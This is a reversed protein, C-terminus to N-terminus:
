IKNNYIDMSHYLSIIDLTWVALSNAYTVYRKGSVLISTTIDTAFWNTDISVKKYSGSSITVSKINKLSSTWNKADNNFAMKSNYYVTRSSGTNNHIRVQWNSGYVLQIDLYYKGNVGKEYTNYSYVLDWPVCGLGMYYSDGNLYYRVGVDVGAYKWSAYILESCYWGDSDISTNLRLTNLSYPKGIQAKAFTLAKSRRTATTGVVRLIKVGFTVMRNDDLFGYSVTPYISEITQIYSGYYSSHSTDSILATHGISGIITKSEFIIDGVLLSSYDFTQGNYGTYVPKRSFASSPTNTPNSDADLIYDATASTFSSSLTTTKILSSNNEYEVVHNIVKETYTAIDYDYSYYGECFEDLTFTMELNNDLLTNTAKEYYSEFVDVYSVIETTSVEGDNKIEELDSSVSVSTGLSPIAAAFIAALSSIFIIPKKSKIKNM